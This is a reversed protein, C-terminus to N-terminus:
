SLKDEYSLNFLAKLATNELKLKVFKELYAIGTSQQKKISFLYQDLALKTSLFHDDQCMTPVCYALSVCYITGM